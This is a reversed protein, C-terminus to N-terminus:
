DHFQYTLVSNREMFDGSMDMGHPLVPCGICFIMSLASVFSPLCLCFFQPIELKLTLKWIGWHMQFVWLCCQWNKEWKKRKKKTFYEMRVGFPFMFGVLSFHLVLLLWWIMGLFYCHNWSLDERSCSRGWFPLLALSMVFAMLVYNRAYALMCIVAWSTQFQWCTDRSSILCSQICLVEPHFCTVASYTGLYIGPLVKFNSVM